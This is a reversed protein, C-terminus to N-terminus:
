RPTVRVRASLDLYIEATAVADALATHAGELPRGTLALYISDLRSNEAKILGARRLFTTVPLMDVDAGPHLTLPPMSPSKKPPVGPEGPTGAVKHITGSAAERSLAAIFGRDFPTNFGGFRPLNENASGLDATVPRAVDMLAQYAELPSVGAARLHALDLGNRDLARQEFLYESRSILREGTSTIRVGEVLAWGVTLTHHREAELGGTETDIFLIRTDQPAREPHSPPRTQETM